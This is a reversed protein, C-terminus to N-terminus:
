HILIVREPILKKNVPVYSRLRARQHALSLIIYSCPYVIHEIDFPSPRAAATPHTHFVAALYEGSRNIEEIVSDVEAEDMAFSIPSHRQNVIPWCTYVIGERASLLGCAEHPLQALCYGVMERYVTSTLQIM